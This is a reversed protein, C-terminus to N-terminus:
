AQLDIHSPIPGRGLPAIDAMRRKFENRNLYSVIRSIDNRSFGESELKAMSSEGEDVMRKLLRDIQEYTVGIEGEDTQGEWLDATPHKIIISEPIGLIRALARVDTKYLEGLPNVSCASDGYWTTYGLCIETRNGTGLVLRNREQAKDFLISMRERAMKNGARLRNADDINPFYADIMPTIDVRKCEIGLNDCLATADSISSATSSRFPMMVGLVKERGVAKVALAASVASDIGGSVGVVYGDAGARLMKGTLFRRITTIAAQPDISISSSRM